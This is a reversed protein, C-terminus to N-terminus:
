ESEPLEVPDAADGGDAADEAQLPQLMKKAADLKTDILSEKNKTNSLLM